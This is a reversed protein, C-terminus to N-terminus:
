EGLNAWDTYPKLAVNPSNYLIYITQEDVLPLNRPDGTYTTVKGSNDVLKIVLSHTSDVKDTSVQTKSLPMGWIDFFQGLTFTTGAQDSENHIINPEGDHVHLPYLCGSSNVLGVGPQATVQKGNIYLDLYQHHHLAGGQQSLCQLGDVTQGTAPKLGQGTQASNGHAVLQSIGLVLLLVLIIGGGILSYKKIQQQRLQRKREAQREAQRQQYQDRRTERRKDRKTVMGGPGSM